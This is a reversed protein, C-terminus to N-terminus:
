HPVASPPGGKLSGVKSCGWKSGVKVSGGQSFGSNPCGQPFGRKPSWSHSVAEPVGQHVRFPSKWQHFGGLLGSRGFRGLPVGGASCRRPSWGPGGRSWVRLLAGSGWWPTAWTTGPLVWWAPGGLTAVYAAWGPRGRTPSAGTPV